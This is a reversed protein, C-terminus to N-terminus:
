GRGARDAPLASANPEIVPPLDRTRREIMADIIRIVRETPAPKALTLVPSSILWLPANTVCLFPVGRLELVAYVPESTETGLQHDVIAACWDRAQAHEVANALTGAVQVRAGANELSAVLDFAILAEDEVVLISRGTLMMRLEKGLRRGHDYFVTM